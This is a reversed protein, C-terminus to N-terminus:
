NPAASIDMEESLQLISISAPKAAAIQSCATRM